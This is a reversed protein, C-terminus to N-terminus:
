TEPRRGDALFRPRIRDSSPAPQTSRLRACFVNLSLARRAFQAHYLEARIKSFISRDHSAGILNEMELISSAAPQQARVAQPPRTIVPGVGVGGESAM